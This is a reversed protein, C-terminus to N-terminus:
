IKKRYQKTSDIKLKKVKFLLFQNTAVNVDHRQDHKESFAFTFELIAVVPLLCIVQM